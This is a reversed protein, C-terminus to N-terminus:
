ACDGANCAEADITFERQEALRSLNQAASEIAGQRRDRDDLNELNTLLLNVHGRIEADLQDIRDPEASTQNGQVM